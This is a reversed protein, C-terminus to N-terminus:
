NNSRTIECWLTGDLILMIIDRPDLTMDSDAELTLGSNAHVSADRLRISTGGASHGVLMITQGIYSGFAIEPEASIYGSTCPPLAIVNLINATPDISVTTDIETVDGTNEYFKNRNNTIGATDWGQVTQSTDSNVSVTSYYAYTTSDFQNLRTTSGISETALIKSTAYWLNGNGVDFVIVGRQVVEGFPTIDDPMTLVSYRKQGFALLPLLFLIIILKKM